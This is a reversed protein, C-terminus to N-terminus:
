ALYVSSYGVFISYVLALYGLKRCVEFAFFVNLVTIAVHMSPFASIGTGFATTKSVYAQWLYSQIEAVASGSLLMMQGSFRLTDGTVNGYFAPGASIFLGALVNGIIIWNAIFCIFYRSRFDRNKMSLCVLFLIIYTQLHWIMNYNIQIIELLPESHVPKMLWEWADKGLFIFKDLDAQWIDHRFGQTASLSTKIATFMGTHICVLGMLFITSLMNALNKPKMLIKYALLFRGTTKLHLKLISYFIMIIPLVIGLLVFLSDFYILFKSFPIRGVTYLYAYGAGCYLTVIVYLMADKSLLNHLESITSKLISQHYYRNHLIVDTLSNINDFM